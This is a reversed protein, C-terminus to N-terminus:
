LLHKRVLSMRSPRQLNWSTALISKQRHATVFFAFLSTPSAPTLHQFAANIVGRLDPLSLQHRLL